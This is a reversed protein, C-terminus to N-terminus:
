GGPVVGSAQARQQIYVEIPESPIKIELPDPVALVEFAQYQKPSLAQKFADRTEQQMKIIEALYTKETGPVRESAVRQFFKMFVKKGAQGDAEGSAMLSILEDSFEDLLNTGDARPTQLLTMMENKKRRLIDELQNREIEELDLRAAVASLPPEKGLPQRGKMKEDILDEIEDKRVVPGAPSSVPASEMKEGLRAIQAGNERESEQLSSVQAELAEVKEQLAATDEDGVQPQAATEPVQQSQAQMFEVTQEAAFVRAELTDMAANLREAESSREFYGNVAAGAAGLAVILAAFALLMKM